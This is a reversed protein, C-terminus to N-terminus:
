DILSKASDFDMAAVQCLGAVLLPNKKAYGEGHIDDLEKSIHTYYEIATYWAQRMATDATM